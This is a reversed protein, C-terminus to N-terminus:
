KPALLATHYSDETEIHERSAKSCDYCGIITLANLTVDRRLSLTLNELPDQTDEM